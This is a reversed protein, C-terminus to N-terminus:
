EMSLSPDPYFGQKNTDYLITSGFLIQLDSYSMYATGSKMIIGGTLTVTQGNKNVASKESLNWKQHGFYVNMEMKGIAEVTGGVQEIVSRVPLLDIPEKFQVNQTKIRQLLNNPTIWPSGANIRPIEYHNCNRYVIGPQVTFAYQIGSQKILEIASPSYIGFPYALSDVSYTQLPHLRSISTQIDSVIRTEFDKETEDHGHITLRTTLYANNNQKSHLDDTHSQVEVLNGDQTMSHIEEESLYPVSSGKPNKLDKTIVFQVSSVSMSKLIPYANTYYSEYGDDFTVLVANNPVSGGALYQKFQEYNIFYFGEQKLFSLQSQLLSTSITDGGHDQNDIHHYMLVSVGDHYYNKSAFLHLSLYITFLTAALLLSVIIQRKRLFQM